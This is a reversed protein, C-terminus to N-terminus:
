HRRAEQRYKKFPNDKFPKPIKPINYVGEVGKTGVNIQDPIVANEYNVYANAITKGYEKFLKKSLRGGSVTTLTAADITELETSRAIDTSKM